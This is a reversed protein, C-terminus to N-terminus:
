KGGIRKELEASSSTVEILRAQLATRQRQLTALRTRDADSPDKPDIRGIDEELKALQAEIQAQQDKLQALQVQLQAQRAAEDKAAAVAEKDPETVESVQSKDGVQQAMAPAAVLMMAALILSRM